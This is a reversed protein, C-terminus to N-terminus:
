AREVNGSKLCGFWECFTILHLLAKLANSPHTRSTEFALKVANQMKVRAFRLTNLWISQSARDGKHLLMNAM